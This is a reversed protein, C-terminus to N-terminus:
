THSCPALFYISILLSNDLKNTKHLLSNLANHSPIDLYLSHNTSNPISSSSIIFLIQPSSNSLVLPLISLFSSPFPSLILSFFYHYPYTLLSSLPLLKLFYLIRYCLFLIILIFISLPFFYSIPISSKLFYTFLHLSFFYPQSTYATSTYFLCYYLYYYLYTYASALFHQLFLFPFLYLNYHIYVYYPYLFFSYLLLSNYHFIYIFHVFQTYFILYFFIPM